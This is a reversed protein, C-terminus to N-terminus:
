FLKDGGEGELRKDFIRHLVIDVPSVSHYGHAGKVTRASINKLDM